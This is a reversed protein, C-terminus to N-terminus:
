AARRRDGTFMDRVKDATSPSVARLIVYVVAGLVALWLLTWVLSVAFGIVGLVLKLALFAIVVLVALGLVNRLM